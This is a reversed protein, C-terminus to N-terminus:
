REPGAMLPLSGLYVVTGAVMGPLADYVHGQWVLQFRWVLVAGIGAIMMALAVPATIRTGLARVVLLPGLGGALASWAFTVLKFVSDSMDPQHISLLAVGMAAATVSLTAVKVATYSMRLGPFLDQTIAASCSLVQSDATSVTAAFVGALMMGVLVGPLLHDSLLPFALEADFGEANMIVRATLGVGVCAFSFFAFWAIYIARAKAISDPSDLAMARIMVHPQGVVGFGAAIWGLFFMAFGFKLNEPIWEILAPDIAELQSWMAGFGGIEVLALILLGTMSVIMVISQAADTWISARIGGAFCYAAVMAAGLIVGTSPGISFLELAKRGATLQASAYLGLFALTILAALIVVLRGNPMGGGLFEPITRAGAAESRRRLREHVFTWSIADGIVWGLMLWVTGSLGFTYAAGTLGIFMFGSNQTAVASLAVLWPGVGRSAILYDEPTDRKRTTAYVGIATFGALFVFFSITVASLM